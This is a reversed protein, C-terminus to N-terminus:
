LIKQQVTATPPQQHSTCPQDADSEHESESCDTRVRKAAAQGEPTSPTSHVPSIEEQMSLEPDLPQTEDGPPELMQPSDSPLSPLHNESDALPYRMPKSHPLVAPKFHTTIFNM